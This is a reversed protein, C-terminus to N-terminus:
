MGLLLQIMDDVTKIVKANAAYAREVLLLNQLERDTDVGGELELGKLATARAASFGAEVEFSIRTSAVGSLVQGTLGSVSRSGGAYQGSLTPRADNLATQMASILATDGALGPATAGVGDRIRWLAGGADPDVASNLSIRAALGVEETTLFFTARDTFLGPDTPGRTPDLAPGQFRTVLDRAVADIEAQAQPALQDRIAFEAALSGGSIPGGPGTNVPRGNITLGSLGGSAETMEPTIIGVPTFSLKAPRGELLIAGGTTFLAIQGNERPIERLPVVSAIRDILQQRQDLLASSDRGGGSLTTISRNLEAISVLARNVEGVEAAIRADALSRSTQIEASIAQFTITLNRAAQVIDSHRTASAPQATAAILAGDFAALRGSLSAGNEPTGIAHELRSLFGARRDQNAASAESIRRDALLVQNIERTVGTVQAGQGTNGVRRASVQLERRGYGETLANAINSSIVEASRAAVTLGSLASSMSGSISM